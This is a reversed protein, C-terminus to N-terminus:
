HFNVLSKLNKSNTYMFKKLILFLDFVEQVRVECIGYKGLLDNCEIVLRM